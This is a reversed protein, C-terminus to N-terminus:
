TDDSSGRLVRHLDAVEPEGGEDALVVRVPDGLTGPQPSAPLKM